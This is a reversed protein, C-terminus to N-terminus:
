GRVVLVIRIFGFQSKKKKLPLMHWLLTWLLASVSLEFEKALMWVRTGQHRSQKGAESKVMQGESAKAAWQGVAVVLSFCTPHPSVLYVINSQLKKEFKFNSNFIIFLSDGWFSVPSLVVTQSNMSLEIFEAITSLCVCTHEGSKTNRM